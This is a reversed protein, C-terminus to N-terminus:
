RKKHIHCNKQYTFSLSVENNAATKEKLWVFYHSDHDTMAMKKHMKPFCLQVEDNGMKQLWFITITM